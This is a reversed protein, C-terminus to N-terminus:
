ICVHEEIYICFEIANRAYIEVFTVNFLQRQRAMTMIVVRQSFICFTFFINFTYLFTYM